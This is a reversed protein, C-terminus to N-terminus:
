VCIQRLSVSRRQRVCDQLHLMICTKMSTHRTEAGPSGQGTQTGQEALGRRGKDLRVPTAQETPLEVTTLLGARPSSAALLQGIPRSQEAGAPHFRQPCCCGWPTGEWSRAVRAGFCCKKYLKRYAMGFLRASQCHLCKATASKDAQMKPWGALQGKNQRFSTCRNLLCSNGPQMALRHINGQIGSSNYCRSQKGGRCEPVEANLRAQRYVVEPIHTCTTSPPGLM